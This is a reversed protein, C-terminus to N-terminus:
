FIRVVGVKLLLFRKNVIGLDSGYVRKALIDKSVIKIDDLTAVNFRVVCAEGDEKLAFYGVRSRPQKAGGQSQGQKQNFKVFDEYKMQAM